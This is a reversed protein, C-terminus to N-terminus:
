PRVEYYPIDVLKVDFVLTSYPLLGSVTSAGYALNYPVVIRASDGVRMNQLATTWGQIVGSVATRYISDGNTRLNYSSDFPTGDILRGIYKVDVYSTYLPSFNGETKSRDSLYRILIQASSNWVPTLTQYYNQGDEIRYKQEEFYKDNLERWEKYKDWTNNDDDNCSSTTVAMFAAVAILLSSLARLPCRSIFSKGTM